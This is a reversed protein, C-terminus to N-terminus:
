AYPDAVVGPGVLAGTSRYSFVCDMASGAPKSAEFIEPV